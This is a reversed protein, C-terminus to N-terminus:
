LIKKGRIDLTIFTNKVIDKEINILLSDMKDSRIMITDHFKGARKTRIGRDYLIVDKQDWTLQLKNVIKAWADEIKAVSSHEIHIYALGTYPPYKYAKRERLMRELFSKYNGSLCDTIIPLRPAYTEIICEQALSSFARIHTYLREEADFEPINLENEPHIFLVLNISTQLKRLAYETSIFIDADQLIKQDSDLRHINSEPFKKRLWDEIAQTAIGV